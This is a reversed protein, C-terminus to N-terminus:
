LRASCGSSQPPVLLSRGALSPLSRRPEVGSPRDLGVEAIIVQAAKGGIGPVEDLRELAGLPPQAAQPHAGVGSTGGDRGRTAGARDGPAQAAPIAGILEQIRVTLLDIQGTLADYHDLLM